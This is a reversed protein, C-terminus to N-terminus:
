RNDRKHQLCHSLRERARRLLTKAGDDQLGLTAAVAHRSGGDGYRVMLASQMRSPLGQMCTDLDDMVEDANSSQVHTSWAAEIAAEDLPLNNRTRKGLNRFLRLATTRLWRAIAAPEASAPPQRLLALFADQTLDDASAEDCGLLRLYRWVGAQHRRILEPTLM